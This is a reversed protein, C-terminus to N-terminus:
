KVVALFRCWDSWLGGTDGSSIGLKREGGICYLSPYYKYYGYCIWVSDLAVIPFQEQLEPFTTGFALLHEIKAPELGLRALYGFAEMTTVDKKLHVLVLETEQSGVGKLPFHKGNIDEDVEDFKGAKIMKTLTKGYDVVVKYIKEM